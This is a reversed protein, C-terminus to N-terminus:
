SVFFASHKLQSIVHKFTGFNKTESAKNLLYIFEKFNLEGNLGNIPYGSFYLMYNSMKLPDVPLHSLHHSMRQLADFMQFLQDESSLLLRFSLRDQGAKELTFGIKLLKLVETEAKIKAEEEQFLQQLKEHIPDRESITRRSGSSFEDSDSSL